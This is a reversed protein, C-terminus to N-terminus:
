YTHSILMFKLLRHSVSIRTKAYESLLYSVSLKVSNEYSNLDDHRLYLLVNMCNDTRKCDVRVFFDSMYNSSLQSLSHVHTHLSESFNNFKFNYAFKPWEKSSHRQPTAKSVVRSNQVLLHRINSESEIQLKLQVFM